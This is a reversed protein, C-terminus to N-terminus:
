NPTEDDEEEDITVALCLVELAIGVLLGLGLIQLISM